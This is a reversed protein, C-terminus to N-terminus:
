KSFKMLRLPELKKQLDEPLDIQMEQKKIEILKQRYNFGGSFVVDLSKIIYKEDGLASLITSSNDSLNLGETQYYNLSILDANSKQGVLKATLFIKNRKKYGKIIITSDNVKSIHFKHAYNRNRNEPIFFNADSYHYENKKKDDASLYYSTNTNYDVICNSKDSGFDNSYFYYSKDQSNIYIKKEGEGQTGKVKFIIEQDFKFSQASLFTCSLASFLIIFNKM